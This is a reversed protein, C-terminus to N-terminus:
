AVAGEPIRGARRPERMRAVAPAAVPRTRGSDLHRLGPFMRALCRRDLERDVETQMNVGGLAILCLLDEGSLNRVNLVM